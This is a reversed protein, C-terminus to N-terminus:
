LSFGAVELLYFYTCTSLVAVISFFGVAALFSPTDLKEVPIDSKVFFLFFAVGGSDLLLVIPNTKVSDYTM